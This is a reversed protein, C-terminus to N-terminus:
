VHKCCYFKEDIDGFCNTFEVGKEVYTMMLDALCRPNQSIKKFDSIAKRLVKYDPFGNGRPPFFQDSIIKKYKKMMEEEANPKVKLFYYEKVDASMKFLDLIEAKLEDHSKDNLYKKFENIKIGM